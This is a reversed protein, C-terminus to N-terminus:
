ITLFTLNIKRYVLINKLKIYMFIYIYVNSSSIFFREEFNM